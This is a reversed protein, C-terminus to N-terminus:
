VVDIRHLDGLQNVIAIAVGGALLSVAAGGIRMLRSAARARDVPQRGFFLQTKM